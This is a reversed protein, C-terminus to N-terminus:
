RKKKKNNEIKKQHKKTTKKPKEKKIIPRKEGTVIAYGLHEYVRVGGFVQTFKKEYWSSNKVVFWMTGGLQLMKYGEEIFEKAVSFDTHYPPNSLITQYYDRIGLDKLGNNPIIEVFDLVGNKESNIKAWKLARLNVDVMTVPSNTKKQAYIGMIGSGCGIDLVPGEKWQVKELLAETGKDLGKNSFVSPDQTLKLDLFNYGKIYKRTDFDEKKDKLLKLVRYEKDEAAIKYRCPLIDLVDLSYQKSIIVYLVGGVPLFNIFEEIFMLNLEKSYQATFIVGNIRPPIKEIGDVYFYRDKPLPTQNSLDHDAFYGNISVAIEGKRSGYDLYGHINKGKVKELLLKSGKTIEM